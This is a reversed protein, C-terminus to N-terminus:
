HQPPTPHDVVMRGASSFPEMFIPNQNGMSMGGNEATELVIDADSPSGANETRVPRLLGQLRVLYSQSSPQTRVYRTTTVVSASSRESDATRFNSLASLDLNPFVSCRCRPCKVNLRLWEDICEIHFNHACPLGRVQVVELLFSISLHGKFSIMTFTLIQM